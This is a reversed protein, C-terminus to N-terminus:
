AERIVKAALVTIMEPSDETTVKNKKRFKCVVCEHVLVPEGGMMVGIPMMMGHCSCARDGPHIDVHKSWMCRPCHNTYGSGPVFVGCNGCTFDEVRRQFSQSM